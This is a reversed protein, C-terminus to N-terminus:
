DEFASGLVEEERAASEFYKPSQGYRPTYGCIVEDVGWLPIKGPSGLSSGGSTKGSGLSETSSHEPLKSRTDQKKLYAVQWDCRIEAIGAPFVTVSPDDAKKRGVPEASYTGTYMPSAIKAWDIGAFYRHDKVHQLDSIRNSIMCLILHQLAPRVLDVRRFPIFNGRKDFPLRSTAMQYMCVGLNRIDGVFNPSGRMSIITKGLGGLVPRGTPTLHVNALTVDNHITQLHHLFILASVIHAAYLRAQGKNFPQERLADALTYPYYDTLIYKEGVEEWHSVIKVFEDCGSLLLMMMREDRLRSRQEATLLHTRYVSLTFHQKTHNHAVLWVDHSPETHISQVITLHKHEISPAGVLTSCSSAPSSGRSSSGVVPSKRLIPPLPLTQARSKKSFIKKLNFPM